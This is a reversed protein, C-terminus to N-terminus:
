RFLWDRQSCQSEHREEISQCAGFFGGRRRRYYRSYIAFRKQSFDHPYLTPHIGGAIIKINTKTRKIKRALEEVESLEPTYCTIGIIDTDLLALRNLIDEEVNALYQEKNRYFVKDRIQKKLTIDIIKSSVGNKKLFGSLYMLALPPRYHNMVRSPPSLLVVNM